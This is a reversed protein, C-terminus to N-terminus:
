INELSMVGLQSRSCQNMICHLIERKFISIINRYFVFNVQLYAEFAERKSDIFEQSKTGMLKKPPLVCDELESGHFEKLKQDLTYFEPYKRDVEWISKGESVGYIYWQHVFCFATM